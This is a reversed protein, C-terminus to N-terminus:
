RKHRLAAALAATEQDAGSRQALRGFLQPCHYAFAASARVYWPAVDVEARNSQIAEIVRNAVASSAVTGVKSGGTAAEAWM